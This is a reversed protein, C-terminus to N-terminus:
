SDQQLVQDIEDMGDNLPALMKRLTPEVPEPEKKFTEILNRLKDSILLQQEYITNLAPLAEKINIPM